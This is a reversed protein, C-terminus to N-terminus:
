IEQYRIIWIKIMDCEFMHKLRHKHCNEPIGCQEKLQKSMTVTTNVKVM